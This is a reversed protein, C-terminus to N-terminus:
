IGSRRNARYVAAVVNVQDQHAALWDRMALPFRRVDPWDIGYEPPMFTPALFACAALDARTLQEGVLFQGDAYVAAIDDLHQNITQQAAVATTENIRMMSRMVQAIKFFLIRFAGKMLWPQGATLMPVALSPEDLLYHYAYLRTAPGLQTDYLAEQQRAQTALVDDSPTLSPEPKLEDLYDIIAASGQIVKDGHKLLPVTSQAAMAKIKKIHAGPLLNVTRYQLGKYDLAWRVKECFHSVPFQYLVIESM